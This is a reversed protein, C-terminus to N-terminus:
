TGCTKELEEIRKSIMKLQARLAEIQARLEALQAEPSIASTANPWAVSYGMRAQWAAAVSRTPWQGIMPYRAASGPRTPSRGVWGPNSGFRMWGPLSAAYHMRRRYM